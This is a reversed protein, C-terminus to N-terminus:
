KYVIERPMKLLPKQEGHVVKLCQVIYVCVCLLCHVSLRLISSRECFWEQWPFAFVTVYESHTDTANTIRCTHPM